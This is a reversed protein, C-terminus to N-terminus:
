GACMGCPFGRLSGATAPFVRLRSSRGVGGATARQQLGQCRGQRLLGSTLHRARPRGRAFYQKGARVVVTRNAVVDRVTVAGQKVRILTGDCRDDTLWTTGRIVAAAFRGRTRFKGSGSGWLRRITQPNKAARLGVPCHSFDGGLLNANAQSAARASIYSVEGGLHLAVIPIPLTWDGILHAQVFPYLSNTVQRQDVIAASSSSRAVTRAVSVSASFQLDHRVAFASTPIARWAAKTTPGAIAPTM